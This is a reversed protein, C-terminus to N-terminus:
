KKTSEGEDTQHFQRTADTSSLLPQQQERSVVIVPVFSVIQISSEEDSRDKKAVIIASYNLTTYKKFLIISCFAAIVFGAVIGLSSYMVYSSSIAIPVVFLILLGITAIASMCYPRTSSLRSLNSKFCFILPNIKDYVIPMTIYSKLQNSSLKTLCESYFETSIPHDAHSITANDTDFELSCTFNRGNYAGNSLHTITIFNWLYAETEIGDILLKKLKKNNKYTAVAYFIVSWMYISIISETGFLWWQSNTQISFNSSSDGNCTGSYVGSGIVNYYSYYTTSCISTSFAYCVATTPSYAVNCGNTCYCFNLCYQTYDSSHVSSSFTTKNLYRSTSCYYTKGTYTSSVVFSIFWIFFSL